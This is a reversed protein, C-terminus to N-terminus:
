VQLALTTTCGKQLLTAIMEDRQVYIKEQTAMVKIQVTGDALEGEGIVVMYPIGADLAHQLQKKFALNDKRVLETSIKQDWLMKVLRSRELLMDPSTSAVLVSPTAARLTKQKKAHDQLLGFIREIGISVGVCPMQTGNPSLSGVLNDYRGGAAISGVNSEGGTLVFEYILGTYYDLGRALSLDFSIYQLMDMAELLEFLKKLESMAVAADANNEFLNHKMLQAYLEKPSGKQSVFPQIADAVQPLLGKEEVMEARVFDWSEKDLKDIASCTTRFKDAPVGCIALIADLLRRHSLKVQFSGLEPFEQLVQIGITLVEADAIMSDYNNGAIDFDCQYFERFRGRKMQPADRRYVRDIQYRNINGPNHMAMHRAFPVTLDYRLALLEGGQDALDYILKSDEGYKSTLTDKLEFVPTEIQVGGHSKFVSRVRNFITERLHMQKPSFDQAGKAIKPKRRVGGSQLSSLMALVVSVMGSPSFDFPDVCSSLDKCTLLFTRIETSGEGLKLANKSAKAAEEAKKEAEKKARKAEIKKRKEESMGAFKTADDVTTNRPDQKSSSSSKAERKEAMEKEIAALPELAVTAELVLQEQIAFVLEMVTMDAAVDDVPTAARTLVACRDASGSQLVRLAHTLDLLPGGSKVQVKKQVSNLDLLVRKELSAAIEAVRGHDSPLHMFCEEEEKGTNILKSNELMLRLNSAATLECPREYHEAEYCTTPVRNAECSLTSISTSLCLLGKLGATALALSAVNELQWMKLTDVQSKFLSKLPQLNMKAYGALMTFREGNVFCQGKGLLACALSTSVDEEALIPICDANLWMQFITAINMRLSSRANMIKVLGTFLIARSLRHDLLESSHVVQKVPEEEWILDEKLSSTNFDTSLKQLNKDDLVIENKQIVVHSLDELTCNVGIEVKM